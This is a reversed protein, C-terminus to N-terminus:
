SLWLGGKGAVEGCGPTRSVIRLLLKPHMAEVRRAMNGMARRRAERSGEM